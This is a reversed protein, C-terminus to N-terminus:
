APTPNWGEHTRISRVVAATVLGYALHPVADSVWDKVSWTRPDSVGLMAMPADTVLMAGAGTAVAVTILQPRWGAAQAAGLM